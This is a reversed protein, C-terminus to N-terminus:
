SYSGSSSASAPMAATHLFGRIEGAPNKATHVNAYAHGGLIAKLIPRNGGIPGSFSGSQGSHCPVCLPIIIRGSPALHIHAMTAPGSLGSFTLKWTLTGRM